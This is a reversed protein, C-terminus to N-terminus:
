EGRYYARSRFLCINTVVTICVTWNTEVSYLTTYMEKIQEDLSNLVNGNIHDM